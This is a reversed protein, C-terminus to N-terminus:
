RGSVPVLGGNSLTWPDRGSIIRLIADPARAELHVDWSWLTGDGGAIVVRTGDPIFGQDLATTMGGDLSGLLKGTRADWLKVTHDASATVVRAGAPDRSFRAGLVEDTHGDFSALLQGTRADWLRATHDESATLVAAGDPSFWARYVGGTHGDLSVILKGTRADWVKATRDTSATVVRDDDPSFGLSSVDARHGDLQAVVEGTDARWITAKGFKGATVVRSGDTNIGAVYVPYGTEISAILQGTKANWIRPGRRNGDLGVTLVRSGDDSFVGARAKVEAKAQPGEWPASTEELTTVLQGTRADWLKASHDLSATVVRTGTADFKASTIEDRHGELSALLTGSHTDWIRATHDGKAVTVLKTLDHSFGGWSISGAGALSVPTKSPEVVWVKATHDDSATVIRTGDPSFTAWKVDERHTDFSDLLRGTQVDWLKATHDASATVVRSGDPSFEASHVWGTHGDFTTLLKGTRVDWLKATHDVSATVVSSGDPSFRALSVPGTHGELSALFMGTQADWLMATSDDSATVIRSGDPSFVASYVAALHAELSLLQAGTTTDWVKATRDKGATVVRAGDARFSASYVFDRHGEFSVVLQGTKADWLNITAAPEGTKGTEKVHDIVKQKCLDTTCTMYAAFDDAASGTYGGGATVVRTGDANFAAWWLSMGVPHEFTALATGTRADWLRATHDISATVIRSSDPSFAASDVSAGHGSLTAVLTGTAADWVKATADRSATVIRRGDRSFAASTLEATHGELSSRQADLSHMAQGLLSRLAVDPAPSQALAQGLYAAARTRHGALLEQRGQETLLDALKETAVVAAHDAATGARVIRVVSVIGVVGVVVMAALAVTLAARHRKVWRRLLERTGYSHSAVLQGTLFRRLDDALGKANPYREASKVAMAKNVIAALDRPVQPEREALPRVDGGIVRAVVEELTNGEHPTSGSIAHYMIAGLAYVDAREDVPEGAAQEPAMYAPTGLIAGAVTKDLAPARYPGADLADPENAALDKALGWDIVITEGYNGVLVNGPKLDRHVVRESHAYAMADAIALVTPLLALRQALTTTEAIAQDLPRGSVLKMAYFPSREGLRGADYVPVISPHQLRATILAERVFRRRMAESPSLLEKVAVPRDLVQDVARLVRGAGGHGVEGTVQYRDQADVSLRQDHLVPSANAREVGARGESADSANTAAIAFDDDVQKVARALDRCSVCCALHAELRAAEHATLRARRAILADFQRCTQASEQPASNTLSTM